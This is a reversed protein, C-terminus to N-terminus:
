NKCYVYIPLYYLIGGSYFNRDFSNKVESMIRPRPDIIGKSCSAWWDNEGPSTIKEGEPKESPDIWGIDIVIIEQETYNPLHGKNPVVPMYSDSKPVKYPIGFSGSLVNYGEKKLVTEAEKDIDILLIKPHFWKPIYEEANEVTTQKKSNKNKSTLVKRIEL